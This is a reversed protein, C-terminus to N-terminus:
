AVVRLFAATALLEDGDARAIGTEALTNAANSPFAHRLAHGECLFSRLAERGILINASEAAGVLARLWGSFPDLAVTEPEDGEEIMAVPADIWTADDGTLMVVSELLHAELADGFDCSRDDEDDFSEMSSTILARTTM